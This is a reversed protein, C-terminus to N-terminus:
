LTANQNAHMCAVLRGNREELYQNTESCDTRAEPCRRSFVCGSPVDVPAPPEGELRIPSKKDRPDVSPSNSLLVKTYPHMPRDIITHADGYEMIHGLYMVIVSDAIYRTLSIDHSIFVLGLNHDKAASRLMNVIDARVSVDLMSVPEDAVIVKPSLLVSRIVSIRQLQGGSLEHPYRVMMKEAPILGAENFRRIILEKREAKNKGIHHLSLTHLLTRGIPYRPDFSEFPNQFVMQTMKRFALKDRKLLVEADEGNYLIRGDTTPELRIILRGLTSKGCGSEGIVGLVEGANLSFEVGDVSKVFAKRVTTGDHM